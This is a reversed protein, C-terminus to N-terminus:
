EALRQVGQFAPPKVNQKPSLKFSHPPSPPSLWVRILFYLIHMELQAEKLAMECTSFSFFDQFFLLSQLKFEQMDGTYPRQKPCAERYLGNEKLHWTYTDKDYKSEMRSGSCHIQVDETSGCIEGCEWPASSSCPPLFFSVLPFVRSSEGSTVWPSSPSILHDCVPDLGLNRGASLHNEISLTQGPEPTDRPM